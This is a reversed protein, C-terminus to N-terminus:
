NKEKSSEFVVINFARNTVGTKSADECIPKGDIYVSWFSYNSAIKVVVIVNDLYESLTEYLFQATKKSNIILKYDM